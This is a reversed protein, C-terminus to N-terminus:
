SKRALHSFLPSQRLDRWEMWGESLPVAGYQSYLRRAAANESAVNVCIRNMNRQGFWSLMITVLRGAIGQGRYEPLVNIWQLEGDCGFRRTRHGAVFGVIRGDHVAVLCAREALAQQPSRTGRLYGGVRDDWYSQSEWERARIAAMGPIDAESAVRIAIEQVMRQLM